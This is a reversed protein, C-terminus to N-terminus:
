LLLAKKSLRDAHKNQERPIWKLTINFKTKLETLLQKCRKAAPIYSGSRMARKGKMQEILMESDGMILIDTGEVITDRILTLAIGFAYYEAVNNTLTFNKNYFAKMYEEEGLVIGCGIKDTRSAKNCAGDFFVKM